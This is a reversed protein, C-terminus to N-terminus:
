LVIGKEKLMENTKIRVAKLIDIAKEPRNQDHYTQAIESMTESWEFFAGRCEFIESAKEFLSIANERDNRRLAIRAQTRNVWGNYVNLNDLLKTAEKCCEEAKPIEDNALHVRSLEAYAVGVEDSAGFQQLVEIAEEIMLVSEHYRGSEKMQVARDINLLAIKKQQNMIGYLAFSRDLYDSSKDYRRLLNYKKGM